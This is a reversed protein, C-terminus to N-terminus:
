SPGTIHTQTILFATRLTTNRSSVVFDPNYSFQTNGLVPTNMYVVVNPNLALDITPFRPLQELGQPDLACFIDFSVPYHNPNGVGQQRLIARTQFRSSFIVHFQNTGRNEILETYGRLRDDYPPRGPDSLGSNVVRQRRELIDEEHYIFAEMVDATPYITWLGHKDMAWHLHSTVQIYATPFEDLFFYLSSKSPVLNTYNTAEM